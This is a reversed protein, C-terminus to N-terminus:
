EVGYNIGNNQQPSAFFHNKVAEWLLILNDYAM